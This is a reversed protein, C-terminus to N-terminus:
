KSERLRLGRVELIVGLTEGNWNQSSEFLFAMIGGPRSMEREGTHVTEMGELNNEVERKGRGWDRCLFPFRSFHTFPVFPQASAWLMEPM